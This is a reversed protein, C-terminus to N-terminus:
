PMLRSPLPVVRRCGANGFTRGRLTRSVSVAVIYGGHDDLTREAHGSTSLSARDQLHGSERYTAREAPWRRSGGAGCSTSLGGVRVREM